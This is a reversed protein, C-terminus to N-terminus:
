FFLSLGLIAHFFALVIVIRVLILHANVTMKTKGHLVLYGVTAAVLMLLFVFLGGFMMAPKGFIPYLAIQRLFDLM